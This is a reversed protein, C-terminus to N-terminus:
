RPKRASILLFLGWKRFLIKVLFRPYVKWMLRYFWGQFRSSPRVLLLDGPSFVQRMHVEEFGAMLGRAEEQRFTKTGPSELEEYVTQRLSKNRLAGYRLWLMMGTLSPHHYIMIRAEGGPKLVRLVERVCKHTDPSHHLVGYSYVIDFVNEAFPLAEADALRLDPTYGEAECRQRALAISDASLDIGTVRAGAKMWELYDAGMGVGIELVRLNNAVSFKAFDKIYPELSYRKTAHAHFGDHELYRTGCPEANWFERVRSKLDSNSAAHSM